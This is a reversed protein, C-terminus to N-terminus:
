PRARGCCWAAFVGGVLLVLVAVVCVVLTVAPWPDGALRGTMRASLLVVALAAPLVGLALARSRVRLVALARSRASPAGGEVISGTGSM